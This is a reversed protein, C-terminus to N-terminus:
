GGSLLVADEAREMEDYRARRMLLIFLVQLTTLACTGLTMSDVLLMTGTPDQTFLFLVPLAVALVTAAVAWPVGARAVPSGARQARGRASAEGAVLWVGLGLALVVALLNVLAWRGPQVPSALPVVDDRVMDGAAQTAATTETGAAPTEHVPDIVALLVMAGLLVVCVVALIALRMLIRKVTNSM